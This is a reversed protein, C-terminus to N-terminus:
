VFVFGLGERLGQRGSACRGQGALWGPEGHGGGPGCRQTGAGGGETSVMVAGLGAMKSLEGSPLGMSDSLLSSLMEVKLPEMIFSQFM